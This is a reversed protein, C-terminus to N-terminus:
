FDDSIFHKVCMDPYEWAALRVLESRYATRLANWAKEGDLGDIAALLAPGVAAADLPGTLPDALMALREPRRELFSALGSSAGLVRLLRETAAPDALLAEVPTRAISLLSALCRLAQDPDAAVAFSPVIEPPVASLADHAAGLDAFGLRALETLTTTTRTM